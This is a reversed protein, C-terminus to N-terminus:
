TNTLNPLRERIASLARNGADSRIDFQRIIVSCYESYSSAGLARAAENPLGTKKIPLDQLIKRWNASNIIAGVEEEVIAKIGPLDITISTLEANKIASPSLKAESLKRELLWSARLAIIESRDRIATAICREAM